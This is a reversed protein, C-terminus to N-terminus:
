AELEMGLYEALTLGCLEAQCISASPYKNAFDPPVAEIFVRGTPCKMKLYWMKPHDTLKNIEKGEVLYLENNRNDSDVLIAGENIIAEPNYKLAVARQDANKIKMINTFSMTKSIVKKFLEKEFTTADLSYLSYGDKYEVVPLSDHHLMERDWRIKTPKDSVFCIGDYPAICHVNEVLNVFSKLKTKNFKVGVYQAYQYYISWVNWWFIQWRYEVLKEKDLQSHLQTYLQNSLQNSLQNGLQNGLQTYLQSHLQTRLQNDLQTRLQNHLQSHLQNRLQIDLQGLQSLNSNKCLTQMVAMGLPSEAWIIIPKEKGIQAYLDAIAIEAKKRNTKGQVVALGKAIYEPIKAEQEPTLSTIM